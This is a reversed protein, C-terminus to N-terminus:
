YNIKFTAGKPSKCDKCKIVVAHMDYLCVFDATAIGVRTEIMLVLGVVAHVTKM